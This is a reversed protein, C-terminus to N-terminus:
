KECIGNYKGEKTFYLVLMEGTDALIGITSYDKQNDTNYAIGILDLTGILINYDSQVNVM